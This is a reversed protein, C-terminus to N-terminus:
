IGAKVGGVVWFWVKKKWRRLMLLLLACVGDGGVDEADGCKQLVAETAFGEVIAHM